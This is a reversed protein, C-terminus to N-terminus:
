PAIYAVMVRIQQNAQPAAGAFTLFIEGDFTTVDATGVAVTTGSTASVNGAASLPHNAVLADAGSQGAVTKSRIGVSRPAGAAGGSSAVRVDLIRSGSPLVHGAGATDGVAATWAAPMTVTAVRVRNHDAASIKKNAATLASQATNIESM